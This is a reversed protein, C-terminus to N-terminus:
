GREVSRAFEDGSGPISGFPDNSERDTLFYSREVVLRFADILFVPENGLITLYPIGDLKM